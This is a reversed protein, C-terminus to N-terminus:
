GRGEYIVLSHGLTQTYDDFGVLRVHHDPYARRCADLEELVEDLNQVGFMPLKWMTWYRDMAEAPHEHEIAPT